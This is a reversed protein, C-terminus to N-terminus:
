RAPRSCVPMRGSPEPDIRLQLARNMQLLSRCMGFIAFGLPTGIANLIVDDVDAMRHGCVYQASEIGSSLVGGAILGWGPGIRGRSSWALFFGFPALLVLNGILNLMMLRGGTVWCASITRLPILNPTPGPQPFRVLTLDVLGFAYVLALFVMSRTRM